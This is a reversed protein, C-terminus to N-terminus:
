LGLALDYYKHYQHSQNQVTQWNQHRVVPGENCRTSKGSSIGEKGGGKNAYVDSTEDEEGIVDM